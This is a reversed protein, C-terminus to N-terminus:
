TRDEKITTADTLGQAYGDAWADRVQQPTIPLCTHPSEVGNIVTVTVTCPCVYTFTWHSALKSGIM